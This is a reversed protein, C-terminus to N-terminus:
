FRGRLGMAGIGLWPEIRKVVGGEARTGDRAANSSPPAESPSPSPRLLLGILGAVAGAGAVAFSVTSATAMANASVLAGHEAPSCLDNRCQGSSKIINTDAISVIGTVAGVAIGVAALGFGGYVLIPAISQGRSQAKEGAAGVVAPAAPSGLELTVEKADREAVDVERTATATGAKAVIAHHGPDVPQPQEPPDSSVPAGDITVTPRVGEVIGTVRIVLSPIRPELEDDFARAAERAVRFPTPDNPAEPIHMVFLAIDRAEVLQGVAAYARALEMGTTPVHMIADAQAFAKLAGQLNGKDRDARGEAMLGRAVEKDAATPEALAPTAFAFAALVLPAALATARLFVADSAM